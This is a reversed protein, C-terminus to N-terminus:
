IVKVMASGKTSKFGFRRRLFNVFKRDQVFAHIQTVGQSRLETEAIGQLLEAAKVRDNRSVSQDLVVVAEFIPQVAGFGIVEGNEGEVVYASQILSFDPFKFQNELHIHMKQLIEFEDPKPRRLIM